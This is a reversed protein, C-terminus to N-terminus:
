RLSNNDARGSKLDDAHSSLDSLLNLYKSKYGFYDINKSALSTKYSDCAVPQGMKRVVFKSKEMRGAVIVYHKNHYFGPELTANELNLQLKSFVDQLM